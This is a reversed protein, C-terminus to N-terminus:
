VSEISNYGSMAAATILDADAFARDLTWHMRERPKLLVSAMMQRSHWLYRSQTLTSAGQKAYAETAACVLQDSNSAASTAKSKYEVVAAILDGAVPAASVAYRQRGANLEHLMTALYADIEAANSPRM